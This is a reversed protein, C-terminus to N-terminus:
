YLRELGLARMVFEIPTAYGINPASTAHLLAFPRVTTSDPPLLWVMAGSDGLDAFVDSMMLPFDFDAILEYQHLLPVCPLPTACVCGHNVERLLDVARFTDDFTAGSLSQIRGFTVGSTSGRKVFRTDPHTILPYDKHIDVPNRLDVKLKGRLPHLLEVESSWRRSHDSHCLAADIGVDLSVGGIEFRVNNYVYDTITGADIGPPTTSSSFISSLWTRQELRRAWEIDWQRPHPQTIRRARVKIKDDGHTACEPNVVHACTLFQASFHLGITGVRQSGEVSITAGSKIPDMRRNYESSARRCRGETVRVRRGQVSLPLPDEGWPILGKRRVHAVLCSPSITVSVVNTHRTAVIRVLEHYAPLLSRHANWDVPKSPPPWCTGIAPSDTRFVQHPRLVETALGELSISVDNTTTDIICLPTTPSSPNKVLQVKAIRNGFSNLVPIHPSLLQQRLQIAAQTVTNDLVFAPQVHALYSPVPSSTM